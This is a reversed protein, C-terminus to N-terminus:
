QPSSSLKLDRSSSGVNVRRSGAAMWRNGAVSWYELSRPAVRLTVERAEGPGLTVRDFAALTRVAFQVGQPHEGPADLYVQPVEEGSVESTNKIRVSVELGNDSGRTVHLDSYSFSSYSLGYGFPFLPEIKQKDFWRYGVDVGESFTTKGEVGKASREPHAPDTAPYDELRKAWTFPLRGAPNVKGLLVNATAWGGEDGPWWMQLVAKVKDLWPLPVPQSVNLVVITNPNVAAIEDVLKNQEGPLGFAPKGRTWLFVVATHANKAADIAAQHDRVRQQPTMWNLRVQEPNNSTDGSAEVTIEHPGASLQVSRRVNDLGDVTPFGNDQTAHQIDGHVTGKTAGTRGIFKGDVKLEGRAGLAQLYIWYDGADPVTLTGRWTFTENAPLSKQNSHTFDLQADVATKGSGDTRLLGPQGDHSLLAAPIPTGTMDDDVALVVHAQPANKQLAEFPGIQRETLGGSREGFTGIAAVQGAGPGILALSQLDSAKLPLAHDNKLLVAADEATKRIVEANQEVDQATVTHKQKGDLYGFRDMEYLVRRAADTITAGTVTGEQLADRMTKSDNDRPFASLDFAAKAPEEPISGGLLGALQAENLKTPMAANAPATQFFTHMMAAFPSDPPVIGPMEMDLGQNIFSVSHVAGWDSTVFGKFGLQGKLITKLTDANGCAFPGNIRNYSCMISSVGAKVAEAFPAVYVEHLTQQDVFVNYSDTDYAVYHKAQAMVGQSQAGRIEAAGMAGTLMPDEGFTNYGRQFTIDRDINIFPQLVVDIGLSRAERGIVVGNAEADKVSFTAAVGMTATEAQAPVRTLLGPPGDAFRLSPIHLRPVGPLYGAQGQYVAPDEIGGRILDMEEELTLQGLLGEIRAEDAKEPPVAQGLCTGGVLALSFFAVLWQAGIKFM